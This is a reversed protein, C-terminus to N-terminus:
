RPQNRVTAQCLEPADFEYGGVSVFPALMVIVLCTATAVGVASLVLALVLVALTIPILLMHLRELTSALLAYLLYIVLLYVAVPVALTLVVGFGSIRAHQELELGAVHLGARLRRDRRLGRHARLRVPLRPPATRWSTV